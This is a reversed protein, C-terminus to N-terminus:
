KPIVELVRVAKAIDFRYPSQKGEYFHHNKILHLILGPFRIHEKLEMNKVWYINNGYRYHFNVPGWPCGQRGCHTVYGIYFKGDDITGEGDIDHSKGAIENSKYIFYEVRDAIAEHTLGLKKVLLDDEDLLQKLDEHEGIFGHSSWKRGKLREEVEKLEIPSTPCNLILDQRTQAIRLVLDLTDM